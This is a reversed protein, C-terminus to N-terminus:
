IVSSSPDYNIYCQNTGYQLSIYGNEGWDTGWSNKLVWYPSSSTSDVAVAVVAHNPTRAQCNTVVGGRYTQWQTADLGISVPGYQGLYTAIAAESRTIVQYDSIKAVHVKSAVGNCPANTGNGSTYPYAAESNIGGNGMVWEFALTMLGGLCGGNGNTSCSSLEQDSLSVLTNGAIQWRSEINGATSFAWCSGCAGQDKIPTVAGRTRWDISVQPNKPGSPTFRKEDSVNSPKYGTLYQAAFEEPCMDSFRNVGHISGDNAANRQDILVL